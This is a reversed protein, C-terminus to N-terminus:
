LAMCKIPMEYVTLRNYAPLNTGATFSGDWRFPRPIRKGGSITFVGRYGGFRTLEDAYPDTVVTGGNVVFEYEYVGAALALVDIDIEWWGPFAASKVLPHQPWSKPDFRDRDSLSAFRLNITTLSPGPVRILGPHDTPHPQMLGGKLKPTFQRGVPSLLGM